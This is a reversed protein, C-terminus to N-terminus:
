MADLHTCKQDKLSIDEEEYDDDYVDINMASVDDINELEEDVIANVIERDYEIEVWTSVVDEM